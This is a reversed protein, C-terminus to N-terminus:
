KEQQHNDGEDVHDAAESDGQARRLAVERDFVGAVRDGSRGANPYTVILRSKWNGPREGTIARLPMAAVECGSAVSAARSTSRSPPVAASAATAATAVKHTTSGCMVPM